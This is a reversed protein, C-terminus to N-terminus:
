AAVPPGLCGKLGAQLTRSSTHCYFGGGSLAFLNSAKWDSGCNLRAIALVTDSM